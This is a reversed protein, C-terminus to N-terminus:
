ERWPQNRQYHALRLEFEDQLAAEEATMSELAQMQTAVAEEFKGLEAYAAALTDLYSATAVQAVAKSAQDLALTGNRLTPSKSTALLWAYDNCAQADGTAAGIKSWALAQTRGQDDGQRLYLAVLRSVASMEGAGAAREYWSRAVPLDVDVGLGAEYLYALGMYSSAVGADSAQEYLAKARAYDKEVGDGTVYAYALSVAASGVGADAARTYYDVALSHNPEGLEGNAHMFGISLLAGPEGATFAKEYWALAIEPEPDAVHSQRYSSALSLMAYVHNDQAALTLYERAKVVNKEVGLGDLLARGVQYRAGTHDNTLAREFLQYALEPDRETGSGSQHLRGLEVLAAPYDPAFELARNFDKRASVPMDEALFTFGRYYYAQAREGSSLSPAILAPALYSRALSYQRAEMLEAAKAINVRPDLAHATSGVLNLGM